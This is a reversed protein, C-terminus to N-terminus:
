NKNWQRTYLISLCVTSVLNLINELFAYWTYYGYWCISTFMNHKPNDSFAPILLCTNSAREIQIIRTLWHTSTDYFAGNYWRKCHSHSWLSFHMSAVYSHRIRICTYYHVNKATIKKLKSMNKNYLIVFTADMPIFYNVFDM